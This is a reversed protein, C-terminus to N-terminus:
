CSNNIIKSESQKNKNAKRCSYVLLNHQLVDVTSVLVSDGIQIDQSSFHPFDHGGNHIQFTNLSVHRIIFKVETIYLSM